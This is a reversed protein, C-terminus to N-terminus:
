NLSGLNWIEVNQMTQKSHFKPNDLQIKGM